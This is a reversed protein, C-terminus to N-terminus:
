FGDLDVAGGAPAELALGDQRGGGAIPQFRREEGSELDREGLDELLARAFRTGRGASVPHPRRDRRASSPCRGPTPSRAAALVGGLPGGDGCGFTILYGYRWAGYSRGCARRVAPRRDPPPLAM